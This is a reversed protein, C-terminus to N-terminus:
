EVDKEFIPEGFVVPRKLVRGLLVHENGPSLGDAPRIWTLDAESLRYGASLDKAAVISRRIGPLMGAECPQIKKTFEGLMRPLTRVCEVLRKMEAPDASLQHDRFDSINKDLTFHKEIMVAGLVAALLSAEIGMTHDSYGVEVDFRQALYPISHLNVQDLPTPYASVCHLLILNGDIGQKSWCERIFKVTQEVQKEDSVGTSVILPKGSQALKKLLPYFNNDGSAVKIMDAVHTLFEASQLDFPTAIFQLELSHTLLALQEFQEYSIEFSKLRRFRAQDKQSVYYESKFVQFKVADVGCAAAECVLQQARAFDGEHNNGIEAVILTKNSTAMNNKDM